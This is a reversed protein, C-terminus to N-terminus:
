IYTFNLIYASVCVCACGYRADPLVDQGHFSRLNKLSLTEIITTDANHECCDAIVAIVRGDKDKEEYANIFHFVMYLPVEVSAAKLNIYVYM